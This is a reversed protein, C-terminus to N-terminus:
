SEVVNLKKLPLLIRLDRLISEGTESRSMEGTDSAASSGSNGVDLRTWQSIHSVEDGDRYPNM